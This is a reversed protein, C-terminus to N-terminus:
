QGEDLRLAIDDAITELEHAYFALNGDDTQIEQLFSIGRLIPTGVEVTESNLRSSIPIEWVGSGSMGNLAKPNGYDSDVSKIYLYRQGHRQYVIEPAGITHWHYAATETSREQLYGAAVWANHELKYEPLRRSRGHKTVNVFTGWAEMARGDIWPVMLCGYDPTESAPNYVETVGRLPLERVLVGARKGAPVPERTGQPICRIPRDHGIEDKVLRCVHGATLVGYAAASRVLVGSGIPQNGGLITIGAYHEQLRRVLRAIFEDSPNLRRWEPTETWENDYRKVIESAEFLEANM